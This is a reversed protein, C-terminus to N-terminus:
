NSGPSNNNNCVEASMCMAININEENSTCGGDGSWVKVPVRLAFALNILNAKMEFLTPDQYMQLTIAQKGEWSSYGQRGYVGNGAVTTGTPTVFGTNDVHFTLNTSLGPDYGFEKSKNIYVADIYGIGCTTGAYAPITISLALLLMVVLTMRAKSVYSILSLDFM